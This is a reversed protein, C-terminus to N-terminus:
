SAHDVRAELREHSWHIATNTLTVRCGVPFEKQAEAKAEEYGGEYSDPSWVDKFRIYVFINPRYVQPKVLATDGDVVRVVYADM